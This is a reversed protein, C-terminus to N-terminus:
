EFDSLLVNIRANNWLATVVDDGDEGDLQASDVDIVNPQLPYSESAAFGGLDGLLVEIQNGGFDAVVIDLLSDDNFKGFEVSETGGNADYSAFDDFKRRGKSILVSATGGDDQSAVVLDPRKDDDVRGIDLGNPSTGAAFREDAYRRKPSRKSGKGWLVFVGSGQFATAAIDKVGDRDLDAVAVDQVWFGKVGGDKLPFSKPNGLGKDTGYLVFLDKGQQQQGVVVDSRGDRDLDAVAVDTVELAADKVAYSKAQGFGNQKGRLVAIGPPDESTPRQGVVLDARNDGDVKAIAVSVPQSPLDITEADSFMGGGEGLLISVSGGDRNAVAIDKVPGNDIKGIAIDIPRTDADYPVPAQFGLTGAVAVGVAVTLTLVATASVLLSTRASM